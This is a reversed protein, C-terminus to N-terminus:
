ELGPPPSVVFTDSWYITDLLGHIETYTGCRRITHVYNNNCAELVLLKLLVSIKLIYSFNVWKIQRLIIFILFYSFCWMFSVSIGSGSTTLLFSGSLACAFMWIIYFYTISVISWGSQPTFTHKIYCCCDMRLGFLICRVFFVM